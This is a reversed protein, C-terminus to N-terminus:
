IEASPPGELLFARPTRVRLGVDDREMLAGFHRRDGTVLVGCGAALAADLVLADDPPLLALSRETGWEVDPAREVEALRAVFAAMAEPRKTELNVRAEAVCHASTVLLVRGARGLEFLLEFAAGGLAASFLVNADLFVRLAGM